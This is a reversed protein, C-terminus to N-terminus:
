FMGRGSNVAPGLRLFMKKNILLDSFARHLDAENPHQDQLSQAKVSAIYDKLTVPAAGYYSCDDTYRRARERGAETLQYQYDNVAAANRYAVLQEQKLRRLLQDIIAFPLKVQSAIMRGEADGRAMLFKLMLEEIQSETLQTDAITKPEKPLFEGEAAAEIAAEKERRTIEDKEVQEVSDGSAIRQIRNLLGDLKDESKM